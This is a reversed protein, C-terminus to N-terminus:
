KPKPQKLSSKLLPDDSVYLIDNRERQEFVEEFNDVSIIIYRPYAIDYVVNGKSDRMKKPESVPHTRQIGIKEMLKKNGPDYLTMKVNDQGPSSYFVIEMRLDKRVVASSAFWQPLRSEPALQFDSEICGYKPNCCGLFTLLVALGLNRWM